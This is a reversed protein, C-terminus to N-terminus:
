LFREFSVPKILYDLVDLAFGEVAYEPYATTMIVAPLNTTSKLFEVGNLRPMNIDLFIIDVQTENLLSAAKVPNECKGTLNLFEIDSIYEELIKRAIPEDDIILCNLKM